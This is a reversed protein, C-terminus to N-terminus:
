GLSRTACRRSSNRHRGVAVLNRAMRTHLRASEALDPVVPSSRAVSAGMAALRDALRGLAVRIDNAVPLLPHDDIVLV